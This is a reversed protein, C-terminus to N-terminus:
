HGSSAVIRAAMLTEIVARPIRENLVVEGKAQRIAEAFRAAWVNEFLLLGISTNNELTAAVAQLDDESLLGAIEDVVPDFAAYTDDDLDSLEFTTVTGDADKGVFVIDIVRILGDEVLAALAPAIEGTFQNGPFKVELLEIPGLPM